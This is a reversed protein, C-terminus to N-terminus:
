AWCAIMSKKYTRLTSSPTPIVPMWLRMKTYVAQNLIFRLQNWCWSFGTRIKQRWRDTENLPIDLKKIFGLKQTYFELAKQQDRVPISIVTVKM